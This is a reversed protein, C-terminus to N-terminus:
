EKYNPITQKKTHLVWRIPEGKPGMGVRVTAIVACTRPRLKDPRRLDDLTSQLNYEASFVDDILVVKSMVGINRWIDRVGLEPKLTIIRVQKHFQEPVCDKIKQIWGPLHERQIITMPYVSSPDNLNQNVIDKLVNQLMTTKGDHVSTGIFFGDTRELGLLDGNSPDRITITEIPPQIYLSTKETIKAITQDDLIVRRKTNVDIIIYLSSAIDNTGINMFLHQDAPLSGEVDVEIYASSSQQILAKPFPLHALHTEEVKCNFLESQAAKRHGELYLYTRSGPENIVSTKARRDVSEKFSLQVESPLANYGAADIMGLSRDGRLVSIENVGDLTQFVAVATSINKSIVLSFNGM